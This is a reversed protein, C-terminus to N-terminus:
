KRNISVKMFQRQTKTTDNLHIICLSSNTSLINILCWYGITFPYMCFLCLVILSLCNVLSNVFPDFHEIDLRLLTLGFILWSILDVTNTARGVLRTLTACPRKLTSGSVNGYGLCARCEWFHRSSRRCEELNPRRVYWATFRVGLLLNLASPFAEWLSSTHWDLSTVCGVLDMGNIGCGALNHGMWQIWSLLDVRSNKLRPSNIVILWDMQYGVSPNNLWEVVNRMDLSNKECFILILGLLNQFRFFAYINSFRFFSRTCYYM